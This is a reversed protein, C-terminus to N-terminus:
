ESTLADGKLSLEEVSSEIPNLVVCILTIILAILKLMKKLKLSSNLLYNQSHITPRIIFYVFFVRIINYSYYIYLQSFM